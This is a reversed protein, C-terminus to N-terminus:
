ITNEQNALRSTVDGSQSSEQASYLRISFAGDKTFIYLALPKSQQQISLAAEDAHNYTFVNLIPAFTEEAMINANSPVDTMITPHISQLNADAHGGFVNNVGIDLKM